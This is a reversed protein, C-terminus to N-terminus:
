KSEGFLANWLGTKNKQEPKLWFMIWSVRSIGVEFFERDSTERYRALKKHLAKEYGRANQVLWSKVVEFDHPVSTDSLEKAREAPTRYTYGIKLLGPLSKNSLAYIYGYRDSVVLRRICGNGSM